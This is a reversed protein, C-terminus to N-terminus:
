RKKFLQRRGPKNRTLIGKVELIRANPFRKHLAEYNVDYHKLDATFCPHGFRQMNEFLANLDEEDWLVYNGESDVDVIDRGDELTFIVRKPYYYM